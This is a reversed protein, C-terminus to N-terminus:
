PAYRKHGSEVRRAFWSAGNTALRQPVQEAMAFGVDARLGTWPGMVPPDLLEQRVALRREAEWRHDDFRAAEPTECFVSGVRRLSNFQRREVAVYDGVGVPHHAESGANWPM